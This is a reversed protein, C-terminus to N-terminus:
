LCFVGVGVWVTWRYQGAMFMYFPKTNMLYLLM